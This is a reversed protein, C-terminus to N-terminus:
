VTSWKPTTIIIHKGISDFLIKFCKSWYQIPGSEDPTGVTCVCCLRLYYINYVYFSM